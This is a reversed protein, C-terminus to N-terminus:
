FKRQKRLWDRYDAVSKIKEGYFDPMAGGVGPVTPVVAAIEQPRHRQIRHFFDRDRVDLAKLDASSKTLRWISGFALIGGFYGVGAVVFAGGIYLMTPDGLGLIQQSPDFDMVAGFYYSGGLFGQLAGVIGGAREANKRSNRLAFYTSWPL